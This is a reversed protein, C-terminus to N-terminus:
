AMSRTGYGGPGMESHCHPCHLPRARHETSLTPSYTLPAIIQIAGQHYGQGQLADHIM